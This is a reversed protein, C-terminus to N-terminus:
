PTATSSNAPPTAAAPELDPVSGSRTLHSPSTSATAAQRRPPPPKSPSSGIVCLACLLGFALSGVLWLPMPGIPLGWWWELGADLNVWRVDLGTVFRRLTFWQIVLDAVFAVIAITALQVRNMGVNPHDLGLLSMTALIILLPYLYRSQVGQGVFIRDRMLWLMPLFVLLGAVVTLCVTKRWDIKRLGWFIVGGFVLIVPLWVVAPATTGLWLALNNIPAGFAHAWLLPLNILNTWLLTPWSLTASSPDIPNSLEVGPNVASSQGVSLFLLLAALGLLAPFLALRLYIRTREAKFICVLLIVVVAYAAADARSGAGLLVAAAALSALAIRRGITQSEFYGLVSIWLTAASIIGWSSPNVSPILFMGFPVITALSGWILLGRRRAGILMYLAFMMGVYIAANVIRMTVVSLSLNSSALVGMTAYFVPPYIPTFNGRDTEALVAPPQQACSAAQSPQHDFCQSASLLEAPM